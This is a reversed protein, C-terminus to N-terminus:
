CIRGARLTNTSKSTVDVIDAAVIAINDAARVFPFLNCDRIVAYIQAM